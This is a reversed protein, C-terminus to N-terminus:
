HRCNEPLQSYHSEAQSEANLAQRINGSERAVRAEATCLIFKRAANLANSVLSAVRPTMGDLEATACLQSVLDAVDNPIAEVSAREIFEAAATRLGDLNSIETASDDSVFAAFAPGTLLAYVTGGPHRSGSQLLWARAYRCSAAVDSISHASRVAIALTLLSNYLKPNRAYVDRFPNPKPERLDAGAMNGSEITNM